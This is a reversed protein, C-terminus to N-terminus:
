RDFVVFCADHPELFLSATVSGDASRSVEQLVLGAEGSVPNWRTPVGNGTDRFTCILPGAAASANVVFYIEHSSARRHLFRIKMDEVETRWQFDAAPLGEAGNGRLVRPKVVAGELLRAFVTEEKPLGVAVLWVRVGRGAIQRILREERTDRLVDATVALAGYLRESEFRIAGNRVVASELMPGNAFDCSYGELQPPVRSSWVLFDAVPQGQQLMMQCRHSYRCGERMQRFGEDEASLGRATELLIRTAGDSLLADVEHKWPFPLLAAAPTAKVSALALQGIVYRRGLARAGGSARVNAERQEESRASVLTPRRFYVAAEEPDVPIQDIRIGAELGAEHVLENVNKGFRERWVDRISDVVQQRVYAATTEGGVPVDVLAPLYRVLGLGSRKLFVAPLDRPWAMESNGTGSFQYWQLTSGYTQKLRNQNAFLWQNVHRFLATGELGDILPPKVDTQGFRYIRWVGGTPLAGHSLDVIQHPQVEGSGVPVALNALTEYAGEPSMVQPLANTASETHHTVLVSSWVLRRARPVVSAEESSLCFDRLGVDLGMQRARAVTKILTEWVAEDAVPMTLLVGGAGVDRVRELQRSLWAEGTQEADDWRLSVCPRTANKPPELFESELSPEGAHLAWCLWILLPWAHSLPAAFM